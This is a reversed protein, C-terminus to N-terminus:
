AEGTLLAVVGDVDGLDPLVHHAGAAELEAAPTHGTAVAVATVGAGLAAAVDRVTDGVVLVEDFPGYAIEARERSRRVLTARVADDDGYGGVVTDLYRDLGFAAVKGIGVAAINGTVLTQVVDPRAHLAALVQEVGPLLRGEAPVRHSQAAFEAAYATFFAELHPTAEAIGHQAFLLPTMELDTTGAAAFVGTWPVGTVATFATGYAEVGVGGAAILTLDVDWMVLRQM